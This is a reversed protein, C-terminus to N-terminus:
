NEVLLRDYCHLDPGQQAITALQPHATLDLVPLDLAPQQLQRLCLEVGEARLCGYDLALAIAQEVLPAPYKGHLQVSRTRVFERVGVDDSAEARLRALLREYTPPWTARWRRIPKAHEFGGPRQELLPLYHLPDFIDQQHGYCRPHSTLVEERDLIDIRFPYAHLVLRPQARDAPVSYRNTEFEVQGYPTLTVSKVVRCRLDDAPLQRLAPREQAWAEGITVPQGDVQRQDDALCERRLHANLEAFSAVRPLPVMFNRRGFGVGHEVGGKEHGQGPTCFRAEFLYHSRLVTFAQQEARTRGALIRLVATKLNDYSIRQPVGEFHHFARVHGELFAEQRQTPFAMMFLRRSYCLRMCAERLQVTSPEGAIIALAEGWDVQADQGPDFELPLYVKPRKHERRYQAIYSRVT